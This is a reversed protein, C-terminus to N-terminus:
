LEPGPIIALMFFVAQMNEKLDHHLKDHDYSIKHAGRCEAYRCGATHKIAVSLM